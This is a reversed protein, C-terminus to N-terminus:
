YRPVSPDVSLSWADIGGRVNCVQRFGLGVFHEAAAQSRVGHHCHFVLLTGRDLAELRAMAARDLLRAGPISAIAREAETRVDILEFAVGEDIMRRLEAASIQKVAPPANPNDISFGAGGPGEVYDITVGDARGASAPDLRVVVGGADVIVDDDAAAGFYLDHQFSASVEFRLHEGEAAGAGRFAEAAAPTVTITPRENRIM